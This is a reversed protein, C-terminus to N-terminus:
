QPWSHVVIIIIKFPIGLLYVQFRKLAKVIALVELEYSTYKKEASTKGCYYVLHMTNNDKNRTKTTYFYQMMNTYQHM